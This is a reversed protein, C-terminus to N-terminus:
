GTPITTKATNFLEGACSYMTATNAGSAFQVTIAHSTATATFFRKISASKIQNATATEFGLEEGQSVADLQTRCLFEGAKNDLSWQFVFEYKYVSGITLGTATITQYTQFVASTTSEDTDKQVIHLNSGYVSQFLIIDGNPLRGEWRGTVNNYGLGVKGASPVQPSGVNQGMILDSM